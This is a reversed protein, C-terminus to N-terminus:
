FQLLFSVMGDAGNEPQWSVYLTTALLVLMAGFINLPSLDVQCRFFRFLFLRESIYFNMSLHQFHFIAAEIGMPDIYAITVFM